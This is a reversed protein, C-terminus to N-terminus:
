RRGGGGKASRFVREKLFRGFNGGYSGLMLDEHRLIVTALRLALAVCAAEVAITIAIEPWHYAGSVAERFVMAVNVVPILALVPTFEIGPVQLFMVPLFTAFYFPTVMSQGEKFTRAFSALIMMGAAIFLALLVTVLAILPLAALPIRFTFEGLGRGALPALVSKMSLVMAAINLLGAVASMTAVYLYKSLVIDGRSAATTMLTEWTSKEREGATADIAPYMCGVSLMIILFMPLMLGLLFQGMQRGTAVNRTTVWFAQLAAADIGLGAARQGLVYDRYRRIRDDIRDMAIRSRDKSDDYTIRAAFDGPLAPPAARSPGFEVLADLRGDRIDPVPDPSDLLQIEKAAELAERLAQHEAPLGVLTVRSSFGETQGSVFSIGTYVLWLMLPYLFIPLLISNIVITRERLASRMERAYLTRVDKWNAM